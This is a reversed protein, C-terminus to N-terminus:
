RLGEIRRGPLGLPTITVALGGDIQEIAFKSVAVQLRSNRVLQGDEVMWVIAPGGGEASIHLEAGLCQARGAALDRRLLACALEARTGILPDVAALRQLKTLGEFAGTFVVAAISLIAAMEVLTSGRTSRRTM